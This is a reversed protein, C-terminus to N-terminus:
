VEVAKQIAGMHIFIQEWENWPPIEGTWRGWDQQGHRLCLAYYARSILSCLQDDTLSAHAIGLRNLEYRIAELRGKTNNVPEQM